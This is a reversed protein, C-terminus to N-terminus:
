RLRCTPLSSCLDNPRSLPATATMKACAAREMGAVIGPICSGTAATILALGPGHVVALAGNEGEDNTSIDLFHTHVTELLHRYAEPVNAIELTQCRSRLRIRRTDTFRLYIM